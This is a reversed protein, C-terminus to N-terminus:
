QSATAFYFGLPSFQVDWVPYGHGRYCVLASKTEMHWLRVTNDEALPSVLCLM